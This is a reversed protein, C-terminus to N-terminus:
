FMNGITIYALPRGKRKPDDINWGLDFRIPGLPTKYRLGWGVAGKLNFASVDKRQAFVQGLDYFVAGSLNDLGQLIPFNMELNVLFMAKGGVPMGSKSDRPGLGDIREGRFSNSGGAFFREPIPIRGRGLGVRVTTCFNLRTLIPYYHQFKFFAKLFDSETNFLPYAWEGVLSMFTGRTPNFTDNRRDWMLTASAQTTSYPLLQRDVENEAVNLFTLKTRSWTLTGLLALGPVIPKVLNLSVGRRDFGFSTRDEGEIWANLITRMPVGFFYPQEWAVVARKEVLSFQGVLSLQAATGFINSRIFEATARLRIDNEWLAVSRPETRTELGVGAGVYNREGERVTIVLNERGSEVEAEDIRVESFVGLGEIRRKSELVLARSAPDGPKLLVERLIANKRTVKNGTVAIEGIRLARGEAISVDVAFSGPTEERVDAVAKTGRVGQDLYFTEIRELDKQVDPAFFPGGEHVQMVGRVRDVPFLGPGTISIRRLVRRSGEEVYFVATAAKGRNKLNLTVHCDPFGNRRYFDEITASIEFLREGNVLAFFPMKESLGAADRIRAPDLSKVGDFEVRDVRCKEGPSVEYIVRIENEVRDIRSKLSAFVYGQKRLFALIRGEGETLGWEEFIHEEWIPKILSLPVAAGSIVLTIKEMPRVGVTITVRSSALDFKEDEIVVEARHYGLGDLFSKVRLLDERFRAPAYAEGPKTKLRKRVDNEPVPLTGEFVIGAVAYKTWQEIRFRVNVLSLVLDKDMTATVSADYCGEDKLAARVEDTAKGLADESFYGGPKLSDVRDRLKEEPLGKGGSFEIKRVALKHTLLFKLEVRLDGTKLVRVDSFIGTQFIQKVVRDVKNLSYPDGKRISIIGDLDQEGAQGDAEIVVSEVVPAAAEQAPASIRAYIGM